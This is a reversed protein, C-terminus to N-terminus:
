IKSISIKWKISEAFETIFPLLTLVATLVYSVIAMASRAKNEVTPYYEFTLKGGAATCLVVAASAVTFMLMAFDRLTFKFLSFATRNGLGYGRANMSDATDVANELSWTLMITFIRIGNKIKDYPKNTSYLGFTKQVQAIKAVQNKFTPVFRLAMSLVLSLKPMVSGFVYMFKDSTVVITYCKFWYIVAFIMTGSASGYLFAEKTIVTKGLTFIVTEGNRNFLPNTLVLLLLFAAYFGLESWFASRDSIFAAYVVASVASLILIIPNMTFMTIAIVAAFYVVLVIPNYSSYMNM